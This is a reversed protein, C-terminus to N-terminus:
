VRKIKEGKDRERERFIDHGDLVRHRSEFGRGRSCSDDRLVVLGRSGGLRHGIKCIM